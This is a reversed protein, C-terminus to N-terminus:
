CQSKHLCPTYSVSAPVSPALYLKPGASIGPDSSGRAARPCSHAPSRGGGGRGPPAPVRPGGEHQEGGPGLHPGLPGRPRPTSKLRTCRNTAPHLSPPLKSAKKKRGRKDGGRGGEEGKGVFAAKRTSTIGPSPTCVCEKGAWKRGQRWQHTTAERGPTEM